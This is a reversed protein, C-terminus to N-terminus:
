PNSLNEGGNESAAAAGATEQVARMDKLLTTIRPYFMIVRQVYANFWQTDTGKTGKQLKATEDRAIRAAATVQEATLISRIKQSLSSLTQNHIEERKKTNKLHLDIAKNIRDNLTAPVEKGSLALKRANRIDDAVKKLANQNFVAMQSNYESQTATILAILKETQDPSLQLVNLFRLEGIDEVSEMLEQVEKQEKTAELAPPQACASTVLAAGMLLLAPLVARLASGPRSLRSHRFM